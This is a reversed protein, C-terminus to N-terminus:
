FSSVSPLQFWDAWHDRTTNTDFFTSWVVGDFGVVFLDIHDATRAEAAISAGQQFVIKKPSLHVWKAVSPIGRPIGTNSLLRVIFLM